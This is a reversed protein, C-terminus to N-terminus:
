LKKNKACDLKWNNIFKDRVLTDIKSDWQTKSLDSSQGLWETQLDYKYLVQKIQLAWSNQKFSLIDEKYIRKTLRTNKMLTLKRWYRLHIMDRRSELTIWGLDGYIAAKSSYRQHGLLFRGYDRHLIEAEEWKKFGWIEAGYELLPRVLTNWIHFM